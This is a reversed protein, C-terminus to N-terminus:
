RAPGSDNLSTILVNEATAYKENLPNVRLVSVAMSTAEKAAEMANIARFYKFEMHMPGPGGPNLTSVTAIWSRM